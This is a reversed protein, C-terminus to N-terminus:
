KSSLQLEGSDTVKFSGVLVKDTKELLRMSISQQQMKESGFGTQLKLNLMVGRSLRALQSGYYVVLVQYEGAKPARLIFEEPGYGGTFDKSMHGGQYTARHGYFAEEGNPDIVHLDIDTDNLDWALVVRMDVPLATKLGDSWAVPAAERCRSARDHYEGLAILGIEAFRDHWPTDVVHQLLTLAEKCEAETTLALALDRYSQPEDPALQLVKRLLAQALLVNGAEQLRYAVLRLTAHQEPMLEVLNTLVREALLPDELEYLRQAVDFYFAPSQAYATRLDLYRQYLTEASSALKLETLYPSEMSVAQLKMAVTAAGHPQPEAQASAPPPAAPVAAVAMPQAVEESSLRSQRSSAVEMRASAANREALARAEASQEKALKKEAEPKTKPFSTQWWKIREQWGAELAVRHSIAKAAKQQALLEAQHLVKQRLAPEADPPVIAHRLYDEESELVLLSSQSTTIGFRNGLEALETSHKAGHLALSEAWWSACWFAAMANTRGPRVQHQQPEPLAAHVLPLAMGTASSQAIYCARIAGQQATYSQSFWSLDTPKLSIQLAPLRTLLQLAEAVTQRSLDIIQGGSRTLWAAMAPDILASSITYLPQRAAPLQEAPMTSLLDSFVLVEDAQEAATWLALNTAGDAPEAALRQILAQIDAATNIQLQERKLDNRLVSLTLTLSRNKLYAALLELEAQRSQQGSSLSLDWLVEIHKSQKKALTASGLAPVELWHMQLGDDFSQSFSSDGKPAKICVSSASAATVPWSARLQGAKKSFKLGTKVAALQANAVTVEAKLPGAPVDSTLQHLWGCETREALGAITLRVRREGGAPVPFVRISYSNGTGKEALAPDVQRRVTDEFVARAKVKPVPVAQRYHGEVDLAYTQLREHAALPLYLTTELPQSGPNKIRLEIHRQAFPGDLQWRLSQVELSTGPESSSMPLAIVSASLALLCSFASLLTATLKM